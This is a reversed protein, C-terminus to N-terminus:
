PLFMKIAPDAFATISAIQINSRETTNWGMSVMAETQGGISYEKGAADVAYVDLHGEDTFGARLALLTRGPTPVPDPDGGGDGGDGPPEAPVRGIYKLFTPIVAATRVSVDRAFGDWGPYTTCKTGGMDAFFAGRIKHFSQYAEPINVGLEPYQGSHGNVEWTFGMFDRGFYGRRQAYMSDWSEGPGIPKPVGNVDAWIRGGADQRGWVIVPKGDKTLEGARRLVPEADISSGGVNVCLRGGWIEAMKELDEILVDPPFRFSWGKGDPKKIWPSNMEELLYAGYDVLDPMDDGLADRLRRNIDHKTFMTDADRLDLMHFGHPVLEPVAKANVDSLLDVGKPGSFTQRYGLLQGLVDAERRADRIIGIAKGNIVDFPRLNGAVPDGHVYRGYSMGFKPGTQFQYAVLFQQM